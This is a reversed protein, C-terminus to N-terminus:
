STPNIASPPPCQSPCRMANDLLMCTPEGSNEPLIDKNDADVAVLIAHVKNTDDMGYYIRFGGCGTSNLLTKIADATFTESLPLIEKGRYNELLIAEHNDNYAKIMRSADDVSIEHGTTM